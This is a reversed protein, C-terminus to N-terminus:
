ELGGRAPRFIRRRGAKPRILGARAEEIRPALETHLQNMATLLAPSFSQSADVTEHLADLVAIQAIGLGATIDSESDYNPAIHQTRLEPAVAAVAADVDGGGLWKLFEAIESAPARLARDYTVFRAPYQRIAIDRILAFNEDWWTFM